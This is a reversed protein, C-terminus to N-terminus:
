GKRRRARGSRADILALAITKDSFNSNIFEILFQRAFRIYPGGPSRRLAGRDPGWEVKAEIHLHEEFITPLEVGTLWEIASRERTHFRRQNEIRSQQYRIEELSLKSQELVNIAADLQPILTDLKSSYFEDSQVQFKLRKATAIVRETKRYQKATGQHMECATSYQVMAMGLCLDFYRRNLNSPVYEPGVAALVRDTAVALWSGPEDADAPM